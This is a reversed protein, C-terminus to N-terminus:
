ILGAAVAAEMTRRASRVIAEDVMNGEADRLVGEGRAVAADFAELTRRAATIEDIRPTYVDNVIRVQEPHIVARGVFGMRRLLRTSRDFRVMDVINTSVAGIPPAVGAAGCAVVTVARAHHLEAAHPDPEMGLEAALDYEGVMLTTVGPSRAIANVEVLAAPTEVMPLLGLRDGGPAADDILTRMEATQAADAVKPIVIGTVAATVTADLDVEVLAPDNNVRVWIQGPPEDQSALWEATVRRADRKVQPPVADELDVIVADAGRTWAKDLKAASDGPVFLYSRPM